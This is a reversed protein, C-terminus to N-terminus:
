YGVGGMETDEGGRRRQELRNFPLEDRNANTGGPRGGSHQVVEGDDIDPEAFLAKRAPNVLPGPPREGSNDGSNYVNTSRKLIGPKKFQSSKRQVM